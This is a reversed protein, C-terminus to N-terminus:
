AVVKACERADVAVKKVKNVFRGVSDDGAIDFYDAPTIRYAWKDGSKRYTVFVTIVKTLRVKKGSALISVRSALNSNSCDVEFFTTNHM